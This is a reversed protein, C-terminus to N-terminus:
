ENNDRRIHTCIYKKRNIMTAYIAVDNDYYDISKGKNIGVTQGKMFKNFGAINEKGIKAEVERINM